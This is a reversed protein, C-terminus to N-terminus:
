IARCLERLVDVFLRLKDPSALLERPRKVELELEHKTQGSSSPGGDQQVVQTLDVSFLGGDTEYAIRDKRRTTLFAVGPGTAPPLTSTSVADETSVSIRVDLSANPQFIALHALKRKRQASLLAGTEPHVTVRTQNPYIQDVTKTHAYKWGLSRDSFRRNLLENFRRHYAVPMDSVFATWGEANVVAFLCLRMSLVKRMTAVYQM